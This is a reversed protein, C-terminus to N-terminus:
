DPFPSGHVDGANTSDYKCDEAYDGSHHDLTSADSLDGLGGRGHDDEAAGEAGHHKLKWHADEESRKLCDEFDEQM